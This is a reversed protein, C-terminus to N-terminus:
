IRDPRLLLFYGYGGALLGYLVINSWGVANIAGGLQIGLSALLGVTDQILLAVAIARRVEASSSRSGFWMLTSLGLLSGGLLRSVWVGAADLPLGYAQCLERPVLACTLGFFGALFVNVSLLHRLGM